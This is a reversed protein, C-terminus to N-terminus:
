DEACDECVIALEHCHLCMPERCVVCTLEQEDTIDKNCEVCELVVDAFQDDIMQATVGPPYDWGFNTRSM